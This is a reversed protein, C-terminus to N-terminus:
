YIFQDYQSFVSNTSYDLHMICHQIHTKKHPYKKLCFFSLEVNVFLLFFIHKSKDKHKHIFFYTVWM